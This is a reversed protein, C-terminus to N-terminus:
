FERLTEVDEHRLHTFMESVFTFPLRPLKNEKRTSLYNMFRKILEFDRNRLTGKDIKRVIMECYIPFKREFDSSKVTQVINENCAWLSLKQVDKTELIDYYSVPSDDFKEFKLLKIENEFKKESFGYSYVKHNKLVETVAKLNEESIFLNQSKMLMIHSTLIKLFPRSYYHYSKALAVATKGHTNRQNVDAGEDLLSQLVDESSRYSIASHLAYLGDPGTGNVRAGYDLLLKVISANKTSHNHEVAHVLATTTYVICNAGVGRNLLLKVVKTYGDEIAFRFIDDVSARAGQDLLFEVITECGGLAASKVPNMRDTERGNIIAGSDLLLKVIDLFGGKAAITLPYERGQHIDAGRNILIKVIEFNGVFVARELVTSKDESIGNVDAGFELLRMITKEQVINSAVAYNLLHYRNITSCKYEQEVGCPCDEAENWILIEEPEWEFNDLFYNIKDDQGSRFALQIPYRGFKDKLWYCGAEKFDCKPELMKVIDLSAYRCAYAFTTYGFCNYDDIKANIGDRSWRYNLLFQILDRTKKEVATDAGKDSAKMKKEDYDVAMKVAFYLAIDSSTSRSVVLQKILEVDGNSYAIRLKELKEDEM